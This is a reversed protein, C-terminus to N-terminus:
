RVFEDPEADYTEMVRVVDGTEDIRLVRFDHMIHGDYLWYRVGLQRAILPTDKESATLFTWNDRELDRTKRYRKWAAPTDNKPDLSVVLFEYRIGARDAAAQIDRLRQLTISCIFRCNAYEMALILPKGRWDQLHAPKGQDSILPARIRFINDAGAHAVGITLSVALAILLTRRALLWAV